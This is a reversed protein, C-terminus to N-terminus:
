VRERAAVEHPRHAIGDGPVPDGMGTIVPSTLAALCAPSGSSSATRVTRDPM